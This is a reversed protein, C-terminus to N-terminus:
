VRQLVAMVREPASLRPAAPARRPRAAALIRRDYAVALAASTEFVARALLPGNLSADPPLEGRVPPVHAEPLGNHTLVDTQATLAMEVHDRSKDNDILVKGALNQKTRLLKRVGPYSVQTVNDVQITTSMRAMKARILERHRHHFSCM